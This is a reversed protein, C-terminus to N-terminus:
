GQGAVAYVGVATFASWEANGPTNSNRFYLTSNSPRFLGVTDDGDKDWDAAFVRDGPIGWYFEYEGVGTTNSNRFYVFGTSARHLGITDVGDGNFDGVFPTDGVVGFYFSYDASGLGGDNSGLRNIIYFKGESPRYISVSDCGDGDFDGAVPMDGPIGFFFKIDAIGQSNSERLYVYGDSQRYLGPTDIGDCNWDGVFPLDGPVGFYYSRLGTVSGVSAKSMSWSGGSDITWVVSGGCEPTTSVGAVARALDLRGQGTEPTNWPTSRVASCRLREYATDPTYGRAMLLAMAGAMMPSSFSTGDGYYYGWGSSGDMEQLIEVGPAALDLSYGYNSFSARIDSRDTAGVAIVGPISAPFSVTASNENGSAAVVPIGADMARQVAAEILPDYSGGLSLNIIDAGNIRAWDIGRVLPGTETFGEDYFVAVPMITAMPAVAAVGVGNGTCQAVVGSVFTGHGLNDYASGPGSLENVADYEAVFPNCFGDTGRDTGSDIVAVTMGEGAGASLLSSTVGVKALHWQESYYPDNITVGTFTYRQSRRVEAVAPLGSVHALWEDVTKGAPVPIEIWRDFVGLADAAVEVKERGPKLRALVSERPARAPSGGAVSAPAFGPETTSPAATSPAATSTTTSEAVTTTTSEQGVAPIGTALLTLGLLLGLPRM